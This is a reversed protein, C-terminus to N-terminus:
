APSSSRSVGAHVELLPTVGSPQPGATFFEECPCSQPLIRDLVLRALFHRM